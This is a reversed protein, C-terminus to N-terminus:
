HGYGYYTNGLWNGYGNHYGGCGDHGQWYYQNGIWNGTYSSGDSGHYYDYSGISNQTWTWAFGSSALACVGLAILAIKRM